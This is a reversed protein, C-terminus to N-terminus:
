QALCGSIVKPLFISPDNVFSKVWLYRSFVVGNRIKTGHLKLEQLTYSHFNPTVLPKPLRFMLRQSSLLNLTSLIKYTFASSKLITQNQLSFIQCIFSFIFRLLSSRIRLYSSTLLHSRTFGRGFTLLPTLPSLECINELISLIFSNISLIICCSSRSKLRLELVVYM